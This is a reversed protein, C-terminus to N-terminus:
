IYDFIHILHDKRMIGIKVTPNLTQINNKDLFIKLIKHTIWVNNEKAIDFYFNYIEKFRNMVDFNGYFLMEDVWDDIFKYYYINSENYDNFSLYKKFDHKYVYLSNSNKFEILHHPEFKQVFFTDWRVRIILDYKKNNKNQYYEILKMGRNLKYLVCPMHYWSKDKRSQEAFRIYNLDDNKYNEVFNIFNDADKIFQVTSDNYSEIDLIKFNFENQLSNFDVDNEFNTTCFYDINSNNCDEFLFNINKKFNHFRRLKGTILIAINM